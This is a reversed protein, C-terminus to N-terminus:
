WAVDPWYQLRAGDGKHAGFERRVARLAAVSATQLPRAHGFVLADIAALKEGEGGLDDRRMDAVVGDRPVSTPASIWDTKSVSRPSADSSGDAETSSVGATGIRRETVSSWM